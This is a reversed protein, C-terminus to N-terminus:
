ILELWMAGLLMGTVVIVVIRKWSWVIEDNQSYPKNVIVDSFSLPRNSVAGRSDSSASTSKKSGYYEYNPQRLEDPEHRTWGQKKPIQPGVPENHFPRRGGAFPRINQPGGAGRRSADGRDDSKAGSTIERLEAMNRRYGEDYERMKAMEDRKWREHEAQDREPKLKRARIQERLKRSNALVEAALNIPKAEFREAEQRRKEKIRKINRDYERLKEDFRANYETPTLNEADLADLWHVEPETTETPFDVTKGKGRELSSAANQPDRGESESTSFEIAEENDFNGMRRNYENLMEQLLKDKKKAKRQEKVPEQAEKKRGSTPSDFTGVRKEQSSTVAEAESSESESLDGRFVRDSYDDIVQKFITESMEKKDFTPLKEEPNRQERRERPATGRGLDGLPDITSM